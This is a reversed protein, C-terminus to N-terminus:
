KIVEEIKRGTVREIIGKIKNLIEYGGAEPDTVNDTHRWASYVEILAELMEPAAAILRANAQQKESFPDLTDCRAITVGGAVPNISYYGTVLKNVKWPGPTHNM